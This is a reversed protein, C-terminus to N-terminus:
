PKKVRVMRPRASSVGASSTVYIKYSYDVAPSAVDDYLLYEKTGITQLRSLPLPRGAFDGTGSRTLAFKPIDVESKWALRIVPRKDQPVQGDAPWDTENGDKIGLLVWRADMWTPPDPVRTDVVKVVLAPSPMSNNGSSDAAVIRYIFTKGGVQNEKWVVEAPRGEPNTTPEELVDVLDMTRLDEASSKNDARYILYKKFDTERNSAWQIVVQREGGRVDTIVPARPPAVKPLYVPPTSLSPASRNHAGDVAVIRYLYRNSTRGPLADLHGRVASDAQYNEPDDPGRRDQVAPDDPALPQLTIQTFADDNDLLGALVRMADDSLKEYDADAQNLKNLETAVADRRDKGWAKPFFAADASKSPDLAPRPRHEQDTQFLSDDLARLIHTELHQVPKWRVTFFSLSDYDAPTALLKDPYEPLEPPDPPTQLVRYIAAPGGVPGENGFRGGTPAPWKPDDQTHTKDDAASVGIQAFVTPHELTPQLEAGLDFDPPALFIEYRRLPRGITWSSAGALGPASDLTVTALGPDVSLIKYTKDPLTTTGGLGLHDLFPQLGSLDPSGALQVTKGTATAGTGELPSGQPGTSTRFGLEVNEGYGVVRIRKAWTAPRRLDNLGIGPPLESLRGPVYYIRFERTDPAANQQALSWEWSVRLGVVDEHSKRWTKYAEDQIVWRDLPDLAAAAVAPPSQPSVKDLLAVAFSHIAHHGPASQQYYWPAPMGPAPDWQYWEAPPGLPSHLGFLDQSLVRYSYWGEALASDVIHLPVSGPPWEPSSRTEGSAPPPPPSAPDALVVAPADQRLPHYASDPPPSAPTATGLFARRPYYLVPLRPDEPAGPAPVPPPAWWLGVNNQADNLTGDQARTIAGPLAYARAPGPAALPPAPAVIRNSVLVADVADPNADLALWQLATAASGGLVGTPDALLLYDYPTGPQASADVFYLGLMQAFAPHLSALLILDQVNQQKLELPQVGPAPSIPDGVLHTVRGAMPGGAPGKEVLLALQAHLDPFADDWAGPDGYLIRSRALIRAVEFDAPSGPCPYDKQAVPLCLPYTFGPVESWGFTVGQESPWVCLDVLAANGGGIQVATIGQGELTTAVVQGVNGQVVTRTVVATGALVAVEIAAGKEPGGTPCEWCIQHLLASDPSPGTLVVKAIAPGTLTVSGAFLTGTAFSKVGLSQGNAALIEITLDMRSTILLDVSTAPCPIDITLRRTTVLGVLSASWQAITVLGVQPSVPPAETTFVAGKETRPGPASGVPFTRFDVCTRVTAPGASRLGIRLDVRRAQVGAPLDFRLLAGQNLDVEVTGAPPFEETFVLPRASSLSGLLTELRNGRPSGPILGDLYSSLCRPRSPTSERRFLYFGYWPFGREPDFAWRCHLGNRLPPQDADPPQDDLIGLTLLSLDDTQFSM